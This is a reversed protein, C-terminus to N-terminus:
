YDNWYRWFFMIFFSYGINYVISFIIELYDFIKGIFVLSLLCKILIFNLGVNKKLNLWM